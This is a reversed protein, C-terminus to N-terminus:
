SRFFKSRQERVEQCAVCRIKGMRLREVPIREGGDVCHKGDFDPDTEVLKSQTAKIARERFDTELDSALDLPDCGDSM